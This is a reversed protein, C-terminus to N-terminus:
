RRISPLEIVVGNGDCEASRIVEGVEPGKVVDGVSTEASTEPVRQAAKTATEPAVSVHLYDIESPNDGLRVPIVFLGMGLLFRYLRENRSYTDMHEPPFPDIM